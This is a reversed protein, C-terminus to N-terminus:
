EEAGPPDTHVYHRPLRSFRKELVPAIEMGTRWALEEEPRLDQLYVTEERVRVSGDARTDEFYGTVGCVLSGPNSARWPVAALFRTMAVRPATQESEKVAPEQPLDEPSQFFVVGLPDIARAVERAVAPNMSEGVMYRFASRTDGAYNIVEEESLPKHETCLPLNTLLAGYSGRRSLFHRQNTM